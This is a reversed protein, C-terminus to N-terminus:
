SIINHNREIGVFAEYCKQLLELQHQASEGVKPIKYYDELKKELISSDAFHRVNLYCTRKGDLIPDEFEIKRYEKLM